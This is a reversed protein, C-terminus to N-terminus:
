NREYHQEGQRACHGLCLRMQWENGPADIAGIEERIRDNAIVRRSVDRFRYIDGICQRIVDAPYSEARIIEKVGNGVAVVDFGWRGLLVEILRRVSDDDDAVLARM